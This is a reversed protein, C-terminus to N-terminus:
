KRWLDDATLLTEFGDYEQIIYPGDVYRVRLGDRGGDYFYELGLEEKMQEILADMEPSFVDGGGEIFEIIPEYEAVAQTLEHAWTSWGAGYGSSVLVRKAVM